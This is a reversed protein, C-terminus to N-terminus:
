GSKFIFGIHKSRHDAPRVSPRVTLPIESTDVLKEINTAFRRDEGAMDSYTKLRPPNGQRGGAEWVRYQENYAHIKKEEEQDYYYVASVANNGFDFDVAMPYLETRTNRGYATRDWCQLEDCFALLWGLPHQRMKMPARHKEKDKYFAISFKFLSNHMLIASLADVHAQTLQRVGLQGALERYTSNTVAIKIQIPNKIVTFAGTTSSENYWENGHYVVSVDYSTANLGSIVVTLNSTNTKHEVGNVFVSINGVDHRPDLTIDLVITEDEGVYITANINKIM